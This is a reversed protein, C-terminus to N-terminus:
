LLIIIDSYFNIATLQLNVAVAAVHCHMVIGANVYCRSIFM